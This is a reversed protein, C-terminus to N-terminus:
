EIMRWEMNSQGINSQNADVPPSNLKFLRLVAILQFNARKKLLIFLFFSKLSLNRNNLNADMFHNVITSPNSAIPM